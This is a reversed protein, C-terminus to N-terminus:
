LCKDSISHSSLLGENQGNSGDSGDCDDESWGDDEGVERNRGMRYSTELAFADNDSTSNINTLSVHGEDSDDSELDGDSDGLCDTLTLTLMVDRLTHSATHM